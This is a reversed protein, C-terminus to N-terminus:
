KKGVFGFKVLKEFANASIDPHIDNEDIKIKDLETKTKEDLECPSNAMKENIKKIKEAEIDFDPKLGRSLGTYREGVNGLQDKIPIMIPKGTDDKDCYKLRLSNLDEVLIDFKEQWLEAKPRILKITEAYFFAFKWTGPTKLKKLERCECVATYLEILDRVTNIEM